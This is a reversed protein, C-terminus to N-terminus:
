EAVITFRELGRPGFAFTGTWTTFSDEGSKNVLPERYRVLGIMTLDDLAQDTGIARRVEARSMGARLKGLLGLEARGPRLRPLGRGAGPAFDVAVTDFIRGNPGYYFGDAYLEARLDPLYWLRAGRPHGGTQVRGESFRGGYQEVTTVGLTIGAVTAIAPVDTTGAQLLSLAVAFVM